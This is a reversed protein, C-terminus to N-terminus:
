RLNLAALVSSRNPGKPGSCVEAGQNVEPSLVRHPTLSNPTRRLYVTPENPFDLEYYSFIKM